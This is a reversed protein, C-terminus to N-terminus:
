RKKGPTVFLQVSYVMDAGTTARTLHLGIGLLRYKPNVINARHGPSDMWRAVLDAAFSAYTHPPLERGTDSDHYTRRGDATNRVEFAIKRGTNLLPTRAVNEGVMAARLGVWNARDVPTAVNPFPNTHSPPNTVSGLRAQIEAAADAEASPLFEKLELGRRIRNTEDFIARALLAADLTERTIISGPGLPMEGSEGGAALLSATRLALCCAVFAGKRM